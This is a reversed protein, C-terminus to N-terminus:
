QETKKFGAPMDGDLFVTISVQDHLNRLLNKTPNSLTYRKEATLDFRYHFQAAIFNVAVLIVLLYLWGYKSEIFKKM